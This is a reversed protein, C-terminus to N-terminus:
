HSCRLVHASGLVFDEQRHTEFVYEIRFKAKLAEAFYEDIDRRPDILIGKGKSGILYANHALGPTKFVKFFM